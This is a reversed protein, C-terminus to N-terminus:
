VSQQAHGCVETRPVHIIGMSVYNVLDQEVVSQGNLYQDLSTIPAQASASVSISSTCLLTKSPVHLELLKM